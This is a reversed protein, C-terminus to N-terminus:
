PHSGNKGNPKPAEVLTAQVNVDRPQGMAADGPAQILNVQIALSERRQANDREFLGLHRAALGLNSSKDWLKLKSIRGTDKDFEVSAVAAAIDDDWEDPMLASGNHDLLRRIDSTAVRAIELLTREVTLEAKRLARGQLHQILAAVKHNRLLRSAQEKATKPTMGSVDYAAAYADKAPTGNAVAIAFARQKGTMPKDARPKRATNGM